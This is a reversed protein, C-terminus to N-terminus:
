IIYTLLKELYRGKGLVKFYGSKTVDIVPVKDKVQTTRTKDSVLSWIKDLNVVACFLKNRKLHFQRIGIINIIM